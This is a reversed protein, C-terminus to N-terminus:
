VAVEKDEDEEEEEPGQGWIDVFEIEVMAFDISPFNGAASLYKQMNEISNLAGADHVPLMEKAAGGTRIEKPWSITNKTAISIGFQKYRDFEGEAAHIKDTYLIIQQPRFLQAVQKYHHTEYVPLALYKLQAARRALDKVMYAHCFHLPYIIDCEWNVYIWAPIAIKLTACGLPLKIEVDFPVSYHKLAVTRSESCTHLLAPPRTHSRYTCYEIDELVDKIDPGFDLDGMNPDEMVRHIWLDINRPEFCGTKWIKNRLEPPLKPFPTFYLGKDEECGKEEFNPSSGSKNSSDLNLSQSYTSDAAM